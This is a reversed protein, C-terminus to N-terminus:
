CHCHNIKEDFLDYQFFVALEFGRIDTKQDDLHLLHFPNM